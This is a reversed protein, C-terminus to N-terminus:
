RDRKSEEARPGLEVAAEILNVVKRQLGADGLAMFARILRVGDPTSMIADLDRAADTVPGDGGPMGDFFYGIPVELINSINQLRGSGVRNTGKEYKQIQQFTIGLATGLKEQSIGLAVRRTRIRSGVHRDVDNPSKKM